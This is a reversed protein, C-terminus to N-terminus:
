RQPRLTGAAKLRQREEEACATGGLYIIGTDDSLVIKLNFSMVKFSVIEGDNLLLLVLCCPSRSPGRMVRDYLSCTTKTRRQKVMRELM